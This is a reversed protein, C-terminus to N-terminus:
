NKFIGNERFGTPLFVSEGLSGFSSKKKKWGRKEKFEDFIDRLVIVDLDNLERLGKIGLQGSGFISFNGKPLNMKKLREFLSKM